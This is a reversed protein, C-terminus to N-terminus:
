LNRRARYQVDDYLDYYCRFCEDKNKMFSCWKTAEQKSLKAVSSNRTQIVIIRRTILIPKFQTPSPVILQNLCINKAVNTDTEKM